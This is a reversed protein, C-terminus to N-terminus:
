YAFLVFFIATDYVTLIIIHNHFMSEPWFWPFYIPPKKFTPAYLFILLIMSPVYFWDLLKLSPLYFLDMIVLLYYSRPCTILALDIWLNKSSPLISPCLPRPLGLTVRIFLMLSHNPCVSLPHTLLAFSRFLQLDMIASRSSTSPM